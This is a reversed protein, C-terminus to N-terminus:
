VNWLQILLKCTNMVDSDVLTLLGTTSM